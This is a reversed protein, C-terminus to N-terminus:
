NLNKIVSELKDWRELLEEATKCGTAELDVIKRLASKLNPYYYSDWRTTTKTVGKRTGTHEERVKLITNHADKEIKYKDLIKM